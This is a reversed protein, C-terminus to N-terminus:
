AHAVVQVGKDRLEDLAAARTEASVASTLGDIVRVARGALVADLASAKVCHDTAIGVVDLEDIGQEELIEDLTEGEETEGEFASYAPRGQGKRIHVDIALADLAPHYDAGPSGAVCHVPWSDVFDPEGAAFHGGNDGDADHWDRSAIVLDYDHTRLHESIAAAVAAGGQTALAGGETFDNQVDVILIGRAM